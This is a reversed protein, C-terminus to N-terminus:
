PPDHDQQDRAEIHVRRLDTTAEGGGDRYQHETQEEHSREGGLDGGQVDLIAQQLALALPPGLHLPVDDDATVAILHSADRPLQGGIRMQGPALDHDDRHQGGGAERRGAPMSGAQPCRNLAVTSPLASRKGHWPCILQAGGRRPVAHCTGYRVLAVRM